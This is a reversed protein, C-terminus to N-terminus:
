SLVLLVKKPKSALNRYGVDKGAATFIEVNEKVDAIFLKM